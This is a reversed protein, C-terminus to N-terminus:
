KTTKPQRKKSSNTSSNEYLGIKKIFDLAYDWSMGFRSVIESLYKKGDIDYYLYDLDLNMLKYPTQVNHKSRMIPAKTTRKPIFDEEYIQITKLIVDQVKKLKEELIIEPKDDETHYEKYPFRSFMVGPINILPDNFVYEDSGILFRFQAARYSEGVTHLALHVCRDIRNDGKYTKQFLLDNDNGVADLAIVFDVKSTDLKNVYTISGITEPLFVLKITHQFDKLKDIMGLLCAVGSLNDNAQWPHDLHAFLLIERDTKGKITHVGIKIEGDKFESDIFVEYEGEQLLSSKTTKGEEGEVELEVKNRPMTFGWDDQYFKYDYAFKDNMDDAYKLHDRFEKEDIKKNVPISYTALCLPQEKYDLIKEGNFKVWADRIIWEQPITWDFVKTGSKFKHIELPAIKDIYDLAKNFGEGLLHRDIKYLDEIIKQM